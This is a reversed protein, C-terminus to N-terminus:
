ENGRRCELLMGGWTLGAGFCVLLARQSHEATSFIKEFALGISAASTNGYTQLTQVCRELDLKLRRAVSEIIRANAQHPVLYELEDVSLGAEELLKKAVSEMALVAGKYIERGNMHIFPPHEQLSCSRAPANAGGGPIYLAEYYCGDSHLSSQCLKWMPTKMKIAQPVVDSLAGSGCVLSASAGDGFLVCTSRDTYDIFSSLKEAGVVLVSRAMCSTILAKACQLAYVYGSCAATIDFAAGALGLRSQLRVAVSSGIHDPTMTACIVYDICSKDVPSGAQESKRFLDEASKEAMQYVQEGEAAVYRQKIGTRTTIWEDSTEVMTEMDQNTLCKSPHYIGHAVIYAEQSTKHSTKHSIEQALVGNATKTKKEM